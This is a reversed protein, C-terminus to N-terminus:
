KIKNFVRNISTVFYSVLILSNCAVLGREVETRTLVKWSKARFCGHLPFNGRTMSCVEPSNERRSRVRTGKGQLSRWRPPGTEEIKTRLSGGPPGMWQETGLRGSGHQHEAHPISFITSAPQHKISTGRSPPSDIISPDSPPNLPDTIENRKEGKIQKKSREKGNWSAPLGSPSGHLALLM